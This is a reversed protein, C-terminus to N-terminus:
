EPISEVQWDRLTTRAGRGLFHVQAVFRDRGERRIVTGVIGKLPGGLIRIKTGVVHTPEPAVPLGSSLLQHIQRLDRELSEQDAVDLAKALHNGRRAEVRDYDDGHLFMYGPFLPLLSRIERGCPTRSVCVVQPLYHAIGRKRLERALAKEHRPKTHLCWWLRGSEAAASDAEWLTVPYMEPEAALIPM